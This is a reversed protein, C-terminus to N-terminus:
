MREGRSTRSLGSAVIVIVLSALVSVAIPTFAGQQPGPVQDPPTAVTMITNLAPTATDYTAPTPRTVPTATPNRTTQPPRSAIEAPPADLLCNAYLIEGADQEQTWLLAHLRNGASIAFAPSDGGINFGSEESLLAPQGLEIGNLFAALPFTRLDNSQLAATFMVINRGLSDTLLSPRGNLGGMYESRRGMSSWSKGGDDSWAYFRGGITGARGNWM